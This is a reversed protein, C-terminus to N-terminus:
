PTDAASKAVKVSSLMAPPVPVGRSFDSQENVNFAIIETTGRKISLQPSKQVDQWLLALQILAFAKESSDPLASVKEQIKGMESLAKQYDSEYYGMKIQAQALNLSIKAALLKDRIHKAFHASKQYKEIGRYIALCQLANDTFRLKKNISFLEICHPFKEQQRTKIFCKQVDSMKSCQLGYPKLIKYISKGVFECEQTDDTLKQKKESNDIDPPLCKQYNTINEKFANKLDGRARWLNGQKNLINALLLPSGIQNAFSEAQELATQASQWEGMAIYIDGLHSLVNAYRIQDGMNKARFKANELIKLAQQSLGLTQYAIALYVATDIYQTKQNKSSFQVLAKEWYEIAQEFHGASFAKHGLDNFDSYDSFVTIPLLTILILFIQSIRKM